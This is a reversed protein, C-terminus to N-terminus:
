KKKNNQNTPNGNRNNANNRLQDLISNQFGTNNNRNNVTGANNVGPNLNVGQMSGTGNIGTNNIGTNNIGTNNIGTNNIGANNIGTNVPNNIGTNVPNGGQGQRGGQVSARGAAQGGSFSGRRQSNTNVGATGLNNSMKPGISNSRQRGGQNNPINQQANGRAGPRVGGQQASGRHGQQVGGKAGTVPGAGVRGVNAGAVDGQRANNQQVGANGVPGNNDDNADEGGVFSDRQNEPLANDAEGEAGQEGDLNLLGGEGGFYDDDDDDNNNQNRQNGPLGGQAAGGGFGGPGGGGPGGGHGGGGPGGGHGGNNNNQNVIPPAGLSRAIGNLKSDKKDEKMDIDALKKADSYSHNGNKMHDYTHQMRQLEGQRLKSGNLHKGNQRAYDIDSKLANMSRQRNRERAHQVTIPDKSKDHEEKLGMTEAVNSIARGVSSLGVADAAKGLVKKGMGGLGGAAGKVKEGVKGAISSGSVADLAKGVGSNTVKDRVDGALVAQYGANDALIGTFIGNIKNVGTMGGYTIVAKVICDLISSSSIKLAPSWVIPLFMLLLRMSLVMGVVGLLQVLFATIWQKFKGGDDLPMASIVLPSAIYLALLNFIRVACTVIIVLMEMLIGVSVVYVLVYNMKAPSPDFSAKVDDWSYISKEGTYFPQRVSDFFSPNVNYINNRAAANNGITGMTGTLFLIRDIPVTTDDVTLDVETKYEQLVRMTKHARLIEMCNLIANTLGDDYSDMATEHTYDYATGLQEMLSQWTDEENNNADYSVYHFDFVSPKGSGLLILDKRIDNYCANLNYRSRYSPNLSYNGLTNIIRGMAAYQEDTFVITSDDPLYRRAGKIASSVSQTLRSSATIAVLIIFNMGIILLISKLLNGVIMGLTVGQQKDRLDGIKRIVAVVAFVFAIIIGIIAIGTYIGRISDHTFFVDILTTDKTNYKVTREGTFIMMTDEVLAVFRLILTELWYFLKFFLNEVMSEFWNKISDIADSIISYYM